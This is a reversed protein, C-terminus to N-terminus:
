DEEQQSPQTRAEQFAAYVRNIAQHAVVVMALAIMFIVWGEMTHFVGEAWEKKYESLIGTM